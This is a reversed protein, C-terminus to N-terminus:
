SQWVPPGSAENVRLFPSDDHGVIHDCAIQVVVQVSLEQLELALQALRVPIREIRKLELRVELIGDLAAEAGNGTVELAIHALLAPRQQLVSRVAEGGGDALNREQFLALAGDTAFLHYTPRTDLQIGVVALLIGLPQQLMLVLDRGFELLEVQDERSGNPLVTVAVPAHRTQVPVAVPPDQVKAPEVAVEAGAPTEHTRAPLEPDQSGQDKPGKTMHGVPKNFRDPM